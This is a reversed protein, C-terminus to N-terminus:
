KSSKIETLQSFNLIKEIKNDKDSCIVLKVSVADIQAIRIECPGEIKIFDNAKLRTVFFSKDSM